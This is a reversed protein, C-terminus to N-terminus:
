PGDTRKANDAMWRHIERELRDGPRRMWWDAARDAMGALWDRLYALRWM